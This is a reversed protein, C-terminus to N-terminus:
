YVNFFFQKRINLDAGSGVKEFAPVSGSGALVGSDPVPDAVRAGPALSDFGLM